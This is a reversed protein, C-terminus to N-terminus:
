STGAILQKLQSKFKEDIPYHGSVNMPIDQRDIFDEIWQINCDEIFFSKSGGEIFEMYSLGAQFDWVNIYFYGKGIRKEHVKRLVALDDNSLIVQTALAKDPSM